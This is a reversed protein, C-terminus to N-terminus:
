LGMERMQHQAVHYELISDVGCYRLILETSVERIRNPANGGREVSQLYPEIHTNYEPAGLRVFSQMKVSTIGGRPDLVHAALVTDWYWGRVHIGLRALCWRHEFKINAGIKLVDPNQLVDLMGRRAAGHWPFAITETGNWCVSCCVIEADSSDPKLRDTEFDFAVTGTTYRALRKAAVAVDFITEVDRGYNPPGDPWPRGSLATAARLHNRFHLLEVPTRPNNIRTPNYTPCVWMNPKHAPIRHGVWKKIPGVDSKWLHGILSYVADSGLLIVTTPDHREIARLLNPRCDDIATKHQDITKSHCITATTLWCDREMDIGVSELESELQGWGLSGHADDEATVHEGVLM